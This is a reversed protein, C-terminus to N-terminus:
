QKQKQCNLLLSNRDKEGDRTVSHNKGLCHTSKLYSCGRLRAIHTYPVKMRMKRHREFTEVIVHLKYSLSYLKCKNKLTTRRNKFFLIETM